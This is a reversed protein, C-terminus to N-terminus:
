VSTCGDVLINAGTTDPGFCWIKKAENPDWGYNDALTRYRVKPDQNAEIIDAEIDNTLEDGLPSAKAYIRNHKNPSKSLCLRDSEATITEKYSVLPDGKILPIRAFDDELDKLCIEVHLEGCGAVIHQGGEDTYCQVLNDAKALKRLGEVLKPLDAPNKPEVAVRVVASVSYKMAKITYAEECDSITGQKVLYQDVGVLGVTNGCPVDPVPEVKGGMMLVTRQINKINLDIKGGPVYKPGMIRVKQGTSITGSFVRGFAYFRGKDNTPVMKSIYCM